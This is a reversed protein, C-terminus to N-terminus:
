CSGSVSQQLVRRGAAPAPPGRAADWAVPGLSLRAAARGAWRCHDSGFGGFKPHTFLHDIGLAQMKGWGIPELNGTVLCTAVDPRAQLSPIPATQRLPPAGRV